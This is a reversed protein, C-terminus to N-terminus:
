RRAELISWIPTGDLIKEELVGHDRYRRLDDGYRAFRREHTIVVLDAKGEADVVQIDVRLEGARHYWAYTRVYEWNNPLFHVRANKPAERNLWGVLDRFAVDYYQRELGLATAGRLGGILGNYESLGYTGFRVCLAISSGVSLGVAALPVFRRGSWTLLWEYVRLAGYGALLCWFPFFPMFLKEGGYKPGGSFAVISISLFAHIIATLLLDGERRVDDDPGDKRLLRTRIAPTGFGIGILALASTSLPTTTAALVFPAHWPAVPDKSFVTGFYLFYIGYHHLHFAVYSTVRAKLDFWMWPWLALFTLPGLVVMSVLAAPFTPLRLGLAKDTGADRDGEGAEPARWRRVLGVFVLYGIILFPGNLKTLSALGFVFGAGVAARRSREALLSLSVGALYTAAVPVDLTAAHAHFHFRPLFLLLAVAIGGVFLGRRPGLHELALHMLLGAILTAFLVGGVRAGDTPGLLGGFMAHCAGYVLKALPPHEHNPEFAADIAARSWASADFAIARRLWAFYSIGAPIYYDDDDTLGFASLDVLLVVSFLVVITAALWRVRREIWASM